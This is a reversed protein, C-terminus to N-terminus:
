NNNHFSHSRVWRVLGITGLVALVLWMGIILVALVQVVIARPHEVSSDLVALEIGLWQVVAVGAVVLCLVLLRDRFFERSLYYELYDDKDM